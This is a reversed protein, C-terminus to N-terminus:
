LAEERAVPSTHDSRRRSRFHFVLWGWLLSAACYIALLRLASSDWILRETWPRLVVAWELPMFPWFIWTAEATWVALSLFCANLLLVPRPRQGQDSRPVMWPLFGMVSWWRLLRWLFVWSLNKVWLPALQDLPIGNLLGQYLQKQFIDFRVNEVWAVWAHEIGQLVQVLGIGLLLIWGWRLDKSPTLKLYERGALHYLILPFGLFTFGKFLHFSIRGRVSFQQDVCSVWLLAVMLWLLAGMIVVTGKENIRGRFSKLIKGVSSYNLWLLWISITFFGMLGSVSQAWYQEVTSQVSKHYQYSLFFVFLGWFVWERLLGEKKRWTLLTAGIALAIWLSSVGRIGIAQLHSPVWGFTYTVISLAGLSLPLVWRNLQVQLWKLILVILGRASLIIGAGVLWWLFELSEFVQTLVVDITEVLPHISAGLLILFGYLFFILVVGKLQFPFSRTPIISTLSAMGLSLGLTGFFWLVWRHIGFLPPRALGILTVMALSAPFFLQLTKSIWPRSKTRLLFAWLALWVLIFLLATQWLSWTPLMKGVSGVWLFIIPFTCIFDVWQWSHSLRIVPTHWVLAWLALFAIAWPAIGIALSVYVPFLVGWVLWLASISIHMAGYIFLISSGLLLGGKIWPSFLNPKGSFAILLSFLIVILIFRILRTENSTLRTGWGEKHYAPYYRKRVSTLFANLWESRKRYHRLRRILPYVWRSSPPHQRWRKPLLPLLFAETKRVLELIDLM